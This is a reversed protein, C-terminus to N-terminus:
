LSAARSARRVMKEGMKHLSFISDVVVDDHVEDLMIDLHSLEPPLEPVSTNRENQVMENQVLKAKEDAGQKTAIWSLHAELLEVLDGFYKKPFM